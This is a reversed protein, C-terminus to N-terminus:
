NLIIHGTGMGGHQTTGDTDCKISWSGQVLFLRSSHPRGPGACISNFYWLCVVFIKATITPDWHRQWEEGAGGNHGAGSEEEVMWSSKVCQGEPAPWQDRYGLLNLLWGSDPCQCRMLVNWCMQSCVCVDHICVLVLSVEEYITM